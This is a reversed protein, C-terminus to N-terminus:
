FCNYVIRKRSIHSLIKMIRSVKVINRSRPCQWSNQSTEMYYPVGPMGLKSQFILFKQFISVGNIKCPYTKYSFNMGFTQGNCKQTVFIVGGRGRGRHWCFTHFTNPLKLVYGHASKNTLLLSVWNKKKELICVCIIHYM